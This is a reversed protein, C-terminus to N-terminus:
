LIDIFVALNRAMDERDINNNTTLINTKTNRSFRLSGINM